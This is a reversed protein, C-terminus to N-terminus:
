LSIVEENDDTFYPSPTTGRLHQYGHQAKNREGQKSDNLPLNLKTIRDACSSCEM